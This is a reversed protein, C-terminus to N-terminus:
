SRRRSFWRTKWKDEPARDKKKAREIARLATEPLLAGEREIRDLLDRGTLTREPWVARMVVQTFSERPSRKAAKLRRYADDHLSITRSSM